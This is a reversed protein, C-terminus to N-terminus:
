LNRLKSMKPSLGQVKIHCDGRGEGVGGRERGGAGYGPLLIHVAQVKRTYLFLFSFAKKQM